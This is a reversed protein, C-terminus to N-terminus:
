VSYITPLTLHTYSVSVLDGAQEASARLATEEMTVEGNVSPSAVYRLSTCSHVSRVASRALSFWLVSTAMLAHPASLRDSCPALSMAVVSCLLTSRSHSFVM